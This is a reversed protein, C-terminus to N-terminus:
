AEDDQAQALEEPPVGKLQLFLDRLCQLVMVSAGFALALRAPWLPFGIQGQRFEGSALSRLFASWGFYAVLGFFLISCLSAVIGLLLRGGRPLHIRLLDVQIHAQKQQAAAIALFIALVMLSEIGEYAGVLPFGFAAGVVDAAGLLAMLFLALGAALATWRNVSSLYKM